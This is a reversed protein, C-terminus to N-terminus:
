RRARCRRALLIGGGLLLLGAVSPEPVVAYDFHTIAWQPATASDLSITLLQGSSAAVDALTFARVTGGNWNLNLVLTGGSFSSGLVGANAGVDLGPDSLFGSITIEARTWIDGFGTLGVNPAFQLTMTETGNLAESEAVGFWASPGYSTLNAPVTSASDAFGNITLLGDATTFTPSVDDPIDSSVVTGAHGSGALGIATLVVACIYINKM